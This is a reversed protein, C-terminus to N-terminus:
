VVNYGFAWVLNWRITSLTARALKIALSVGRLDSKLLTVGATEMAVDTGSGIAIGLDAQALAPADNIGDGVMAVPGRQQHKQVIAAKEGPLVEAEIEIIGVQAAIAEATRRNDGTVMVPNLGMAKLEGVAHASHEAVQDSVALAAVVVGDVAALMATKGQQEWRDIAETAKAPIEYAWDRMLRPSGILVTKSDVIAQIGRGEIAEFGEAKPVSVGRDQAGRVIAVAVPHESKAEAAAVIGLLSGEDGDLARFDTLSPRGQTLTGTKDLLVTRISGAHELVGADKILVGLEAGRGTGVMIATPTALGLACPCAIVLVTVAPILAAGIGVGLVLWWYLFTGLAITVVIPVFFGSIRDALKQIPAKSGQAREVMKVIQALATDGGVRTAEYLLSGNKNITAGTVPDGPKKHIPVPEGTLMSEDVFSEGERVVGDVALKEGPRVRLQDGVRVSELPVEVENGNEWRIATKPALGMLKQIASSMRGKSRSELYRGTLILTVIAAATEFYIGESQHHGGHGSYAILAYVSYAWAAGSGMAILTDMTASFHKLAKWAVIFFSRGSWLVVPTSLVFLLMNAWEPRPHWAMSILITPITLAIALILNNRQQRLPGDADLVLHASHDEGPITEHATHELADPVVGYGADEVAKALTESDVHGNHQVIAKETAYNVIAEQVGPVKGLAREVRRVCSACTMGEIKLETQNSEVPAEYTPQM